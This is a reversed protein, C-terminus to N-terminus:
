APIPVCVMSVVYMPIATCRCSFAAYRALFRCFRLYSSAAAPSDTHHLHTRDYSPEPPSRIRATTRPQVIRVGWIVGSAFRLTCCTRWEVFRGLPTPTLCLRATLRSLRLTTLGFTRALLVSIRGPLGDTTYGLVGWGLQHAHGSLFPIMM